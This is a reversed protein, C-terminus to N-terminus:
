PDNAEITVAQATAGRSHANWLEEIMEDRFHNYVPVARAAVLFNVTAARRTPGVTRLDIKGGEIIAWGRAKM